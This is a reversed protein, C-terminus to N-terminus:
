QDADEEDILKDRMEKLKQAYELEDWQLIGYGSMSFTVKVPKGATNKEVQKRIFEVYKEFEKIDKPEKLWGYIKRTYAKDGYIFDYAFVIYWNKKFRSYKKKYKKIRALLNPPIDCHVREYGNRTFILKTRIWGDPYLEEVFEPWKAVRQAVIGGVIFFICVGYGFITAIWDGTSYTKYTGSLLAPLDFFFVGVLLLVLGVAFMVRGTSFRDEAILVVKMKPKM